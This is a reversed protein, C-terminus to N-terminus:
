RLALKVAEQAQRSYVSRPSPREGLWQPILAGQSAFHEVHVVTIQGDTYAVENIWRWTGTRVKEYVKFAQKVYNLKTGMGLMVVLKTSKPLQALFEESCSGTIEQGFSTALFKDLMSGGSGIWREKKGDFQEVTCRVFSGFHFRGKQDKIAETVAIDPVESPNLLGIHTLIKGLNKRGGKFPIDNHPSTALAGAQTPGKSFGLVVVEPQTSGWALPNATIRWTGEERKTEDFQVSGCGKFCRTCAVRGSVPLHKM